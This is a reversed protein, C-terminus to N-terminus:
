KYIAQARAPDEPWPHKPYRARLEKRVEPYTREWFGGLDDTIQAPRFNPALLHMLVAVRGRGVRPTKSWGFVEQIRVALVPAEDIAYQLRIQSGSPVELRAPVEEELLRRQEPTLYAKLLAPLNMRRLEAFSRKGWLLQEWIPARVGQAREDILQAFGADEFWRRACEWRILFQQAEKDLGFAHPPDVLVQDLFLELVEQEDAGEEVPAIQESLTLGDFLRRRRAMVRQRDHDFEAEVVEEFRQPYEEILWREEIKSALRILARSDVGGTMQRARTQGAVVPAVILRADRVVSERALAMAEGGVMIFRAEGADRRLAIRDPFATLVARLAEEEHGGSRGSVLRELQRAVDSIRRARYRDVELGAQRTRQFRGAAADELSEVRILLDSAATPADHEVARVFDGESILAAMRATRRAVGREAGELLMRGLRPHVPLELLRKGIDTLQFGGEEVAGLRRLLALAHAIGHEPPAEFFDFRAPDASSWALIELVVPALDVRAIEPEDFEAMRHEFAQTWLRIARGERVRGARGARQKASAQSIHALELNDLGSAPSLRMQRVKGSDVVLTVGEITLSTEAINTAAIIKRGGGTRLARDQEANTLASYLPLCEVGLEKAWPEILELCRHIEGRGPLFILIDGGDDDDSGVFRRVARAAEVEVPDQPSRRLYEVAVEYSRGQSELTPVGLYNAIPEADLTASMVVVKLDDRVEQVEKLFAIALDTHISREHFEDLIVVGVGELFPDSQLRRTLIGETIVALRTEEGIKRDFRVHYGVESGLRVGREQAIRQATARAAVRRPELMLIMQDKAIGADLIAPPVRTSKGAGPPAQIVVGSSKGLIEIIEPLLVDIPLTDAIM